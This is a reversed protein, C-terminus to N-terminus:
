FSNILSVHVKGNTLADGEGLGYDVGVIGLPTEVRVGFGWARKIAESERFQLEAENIFPLRESRFYYGADFFVFARSRRSLLYRYELNSWAIRSGRFQEERYGRLTTAGGFRFQDTLSIEPANSKVQRGHLAVSLVQPWFTPLLWQFDISIKDRSFTQSKGLGVPKETKRGTEVSTMYVVGRRPNLPDDTSNYRLGAGASVISSRPLGFLLSGLSDPSISEKAIQGTVTFNQGLPVEALLDWRRQVYLTDQILQQFGGSLHVPYGAVWPERYRLALEQTERGRKEWRANVQRGTGLLNGFKVDILGTFYGKQNGAGPNYGAVGNLVNSNGEVVALDLWYRGHADVALRPPAVSQLYGLRMLKDPISQVKDFHFRDGVRVPLERLLVQRKTLKNGRIVISDIRVVPGPDFLLHLAATVNKEGHDIAVSDFRFHALPYGRRAFDELVEMLRQRLNEEDYKGRFDNRKEHLISNGAASDAWSVMPVLLVRRGADLHITAEPPAARKPLTLLVSDVQAFYFGRQQLNGLVRRILAEFEAVRLSRNKGLGDIPRLDGATIEGESKWLIKVTASDHLTQAWAAFPHLGGLCYLLVCSIIASCTEIPLVHWRITANKHRFDPTFIKMKVKEPTM